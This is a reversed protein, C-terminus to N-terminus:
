RCSGRIRDTAMTPAIGGQVGRPLIRGQTSRGGMTFYVWATGLRRGRRDRESARWLYLGDGAEALEYTAGSRKFKSLVVRGRSWDGQLFADFYEPPYAYSHYFDVGVPSGRGLDDVPPLADLFYAPFKGSGTRGVTIQRRCAM